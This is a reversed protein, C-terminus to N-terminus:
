RRRPRSSFTALVGCAAVALLAFSSPEPVGVASLSGFGDDFGALDDFASLDIYTGVDNRWVDYDAHDVIGDSNGDAALDTTSGMTDRWLTYDASDVSGDFNFDGYPGIYALANINIDFFDCCGPDNAGRMHLLRGHQITKLKFPKGQADRGTFFLETPPFQPHDPPYPQLFPNGFFFTGHLQELDVFHSLPIPPLVVAPHPENFPFHPVYARVNEFQAYPIHDPPPCGIALCSAGETFGTVIDFRGFVNYKQHVGAFGGTVELESKRPIFRFSRLIDPHTAAAFEALGGACLVIAVIRVLLNRRRM